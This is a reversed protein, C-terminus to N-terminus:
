RCKTTDTSTGTSNGHCEYCRLEYVRGVKDRAISGELDDASDISVFNSQVSPTPDDIDKASARRTQKRPSDSDEEVHNKRKSARRTSRYPANDDEETSAIPVRPEERDDDSAPQHILPM